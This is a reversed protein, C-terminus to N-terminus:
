AAAAFLSGAVRCVIDTIRHRMASALNAVDELVFNLHRGRESQQDDVAGLM